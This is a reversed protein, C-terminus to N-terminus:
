GMKKRCNENATSRKQSDMSLNFIALLPGM